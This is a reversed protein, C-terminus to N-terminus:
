CAHCFQAEVLVVLDGVDLEGVLVPPETLEPALLTEEGGVVDLKVPLCLIEHTGTMSTLFRATKPPRAAGLRMRNLYEYAPRNRYPLYM